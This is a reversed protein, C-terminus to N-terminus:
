PAPAYKARIANVRSDPVPEVAPARLRALWAKEVDELSVGFIETFGGRYAEGSKLERFAIM